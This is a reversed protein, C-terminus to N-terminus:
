FGPGTPILEFEILVQYYDSTEGLLSSNVGCEYSIKVQHSPYDLNNFPPATLDTYEVLNVFSTSLSQLGTYNAAGLGILNTAEVEITNLPLTNTGSGQIVSQGNFTRMRLDFGLVTPPNSVSDVMTIGLITGDEIRIGDKYSDISNFYFPIDGGYILVLRAFNFEQSFSVQYFFISFLLLLIGRRM